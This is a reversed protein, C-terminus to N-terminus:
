NTGPSYRLITGGAGVAFVNGEAGGVANLIESAPATMSTWAEGGWRVITGGTGVAYIDDGTRGWVGSLYMTPISHQAWTPGSQMAIMAGTGLNGVAVAAGSAGTWVGRLTLGALPTGPPAQWTMGDYHRIEGLNGAAVINAASTGWLSRLPVMTGSTMATWATGDHRQIRGGDGVVLVNTADTGWIGFLPVTVAPTITEWADGRYRFVGGNAAIVYLEGTPARWIGVLVDTTPPAPEFVTWAAGDYRVITGDTGAAYVEDAAAVWLALLPVATPSTMVRWEAYRCEVLDPRCPVCTGMSCTGMPELPSSCPTRDEAGRCADINEVEACVQPAQETCALGEPCIAGNACRTTRSGLCSASLAIGALVALWRM